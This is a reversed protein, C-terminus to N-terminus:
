TTQYLFGMKVILSSPSPNQTNAEITDNGDYKSHPILHNTIVSLNPIAQLCASFAYKSKSSQPHVGCSALDTRGFLKFVSTTIVQLKRSHRCKKLNLAASAVPAAWGCIFSTVLGSRLSFQHVPL